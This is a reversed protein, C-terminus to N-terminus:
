EPIEPSTLLDVVDPRLRAVNNYDNLDDPKLFLNEEGDCDTVCFWEPNVVAARCRASNIRIAAPRSRSEAWQEASCLAKVGSGIMKLLEPLQASSTLHPVRIPGHGSVLLPLCIDSSRLKTTKFGFESNQGLRFGSTGTFVLRAGRQNAEDMLYGMMGDILRVQAAYRDMWQPLLDPDDEAQIIFNPPIVQPPLMDHPQIASDEVKDEDTWLTEDDPIIGNELEEGSDVEDMPLPADWCKTLFDSHIWIVSAPNPENLRQIATAILQGFRTEFVEECPLQSETVPEVPIITIEDFCHDTLQELSQDAFLSTAGLKRYPAVWESKDCIWQELIFNSEDSCAVMRDWISGSACLQDLSPTRNWSCGYCSLANPTIGELSVVILPQPAM